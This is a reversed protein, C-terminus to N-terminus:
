AAKPAMSVVWDYVKDGNRSVCETVTVDLGPLGIIGFACKESTDATWVIHHEPGVTIKGTIEYEEAINRVDQSLRRECAVMIPEGDIFTVVIAANKIGYARIRHGPDARFYSQWCGRRSVDGFSVNRHEPTAFAENIDYLAGLTGCDHWVFNGVVTYLREMFLVMFEDTSLSHNEYDEGKIAELLDAARWINIGTNCATTDALMMENAIELEPKEIFKLVRGNEDYFVHGSGMFTVLDYIKVGIITFMGSTALQVGRKITAAFSANAEVLQDSPTNILIADKDRSFVFEAAKIMAGTYGYKPLIQYINQPLIGLGSLKEKAHKTQCENTTIVVVHNKSIGLDIFRKVTEEILTQKGKVSVFPKPRYKNSLPFLRTGGGGALVIVWIHGILERFIENAIKEVTKAVKEPM